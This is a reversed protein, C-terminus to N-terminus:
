AFARLGNAPRQWISAFMTETALGSGQSNEHHHRAIVVTGSAAAHVPEGVAGRYDIGSHLRMTKSLPHVMFGFKRCIEGQRSAEVAGRARLCRDWNLLHCFLCVLVISASKM